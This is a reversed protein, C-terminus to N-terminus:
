KEETITVNPIENIYGKLDNVLDDVTEEDVPSGPDLGYIDVEYLSPDRPSNGSTIQVNDRVM